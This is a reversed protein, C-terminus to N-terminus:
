ADANDGAPNRRIQFLARKLIPAPSHKRYGRSTCNEHKSSLFPLSLSTFTLQQYLVEGRCDDGFLSKLSHITGVLRHNHSTSPSLPLSPPVLLSLEVKIDAPQANSGHSRVGFSCAAFPMKFLSKYWDWPSVFDMNADLFHRGRRWRFLKGGVTM